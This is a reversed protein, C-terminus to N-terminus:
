VSLWRKRTSSPYTGRVRPLLVAVTRDDHTAETRYRSPERATEAAEDDREDAALKEVRERLEEVTTELEDVRRSQVCAACAGSPIRDSRHEPCLRSREDASM